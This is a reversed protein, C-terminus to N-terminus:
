CKKEQHNKQIYKSRIEELHKELQHWLISKRLRKWDHCPLQFSIEVLGDTQNVYKREFEIIRGVLSDNEKSLRKKYKM